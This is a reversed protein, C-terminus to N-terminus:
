GRKRDPEQDEREIPERAQRIRLLGRGGLVAALALGVLRALGNRPAIVSLVLIVLAGMMFLVGTAIAYHRSARNRFLLAM